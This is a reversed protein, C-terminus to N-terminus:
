QKNEIATTKLGATARLKSWVREIFAVEQELKKQRIQVKEPNEETSFVQRRQVKEKIYTFKSRGYDTSAKVLELIFDPLHPMLADKNSSAEAKVVHVNNDKMERLRKSLEHGNPFTVSVEVRRFGTAEQLAQELAKSESILNVTLTHLPFYTEATPGLITELAKQLPGTSPLKGGLEEVALRHAEYDFLFRFLYTNSVPADGAAATFLSKNTYLDIVSEAKQYKVLKGEAYRTRTFVTFPALYTDHPLKHSNEVLTKTAHAAKRAVELQEFLKKYGAVGVEPTRSTDLPLLQINYLRFSAM